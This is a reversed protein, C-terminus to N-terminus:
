LTLTIVYEQHQRHHEGFFRAWHEPNERQLLEQMQRNQLIEEVLAADGKVSVRMM